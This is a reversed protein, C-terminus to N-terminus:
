VSTFSLLTIVKSVSESVCGSAVRVNLTTTDIGVGGFIVSLLVCFTSIAVPLLSGEAQPTKQSM